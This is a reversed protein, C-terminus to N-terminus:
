CGSRVLCSSQMQVLNDKGTNYLCGTGIPDKKHAKRGPQFEGVKKKVYSFRRFSKKAELGNMLPRFIHKITNNVQLTNLIHIGIKEGFDLYPEYKVNRKEM